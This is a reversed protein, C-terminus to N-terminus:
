IARMLTPNCARCNQKHISIREKAANRENLAQIKVTAMERTALDLFETHGWRRVAAQYRLLLRLYEPCPM